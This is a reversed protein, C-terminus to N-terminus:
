PSAGNNRSANFPPLVLISDTESQAYAPDNTLWQDLWLIANKVENATSNAETIWQSTPSTQTLARIPKPSIPIRNAGMQSTHGMVEAFGCLALTTAIRRWERVGYRTEISAM